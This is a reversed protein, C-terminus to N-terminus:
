RRRARLARDHEIGLEPEAFGIHVARKTTSRPSSRRSARGREALLPAAAARPSGGRSIAAQQPARLLEIRAGARAALDGVVVIEVAPEVRQEEVGVLLVAAGIELARVLREVVGLEGLFPVRPSAETVRGCRARCRSRSPRGQARDRRTQPARTVPMVSDSSCSARRAARARSRLRRLVDLEAQDVVAVDLALEVADDRDAHELMDADAEVVSEEAFARTKSASSPTISSCEIPRLLTGDDGIRPDRFVDEGAAVDRRQGFHQRRDLARPQDDGIELHQSQVIRLRELGPALTEEGM